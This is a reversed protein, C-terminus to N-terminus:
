SVNEDSVAKRSRPRRPIDISPATSAHDLRKQLDANQEVLEENAAVLSEIELAQKRITEQLERIQGSAKQQMENLLMNHKAEIAEVEASTYLGLFPM